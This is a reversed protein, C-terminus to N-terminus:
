VSKSFISWTGERSKSKYYRYEFNLNELKAEIQYMSSITLCQISYCRLLIASWVWFMLSMYVSGPYAINTVHAPTCITETWGGKKYSFTLSSWKKQLFFDDLISKPKDYRSIKCITEAMVVRQIDLVWLYANQVRLNLKETNVSTAINKAQTCTSLETDEHERYKCSGTVAM